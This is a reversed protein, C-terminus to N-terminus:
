RMADWRGDLMEAGEADECFLMCDDAMIAAASLYTLDLLAAAHETMLVTEVSASEAERRRPMELSSMKRGQSRLLCCGKRWAVITSHMAISRCM